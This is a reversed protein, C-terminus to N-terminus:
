GTSLGMHHPVSTEWWYGHSHVMKPLFFFFAGAGTLGESSVVDGNLQLLHFILCGGWIGGQVLHMVYEQRFQASGLPM